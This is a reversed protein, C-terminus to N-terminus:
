DICWFSYFDGYSMSFLGRLRNRITAFLGLPPLNYDASGIEYGLQALLGPDSQFILRQAM